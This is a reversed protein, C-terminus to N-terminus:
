ASRAKEAGAAASWPAARNAAAAVRSLLGTRRLTQAVAMGGVAILCGGIVDTFNHGGETITGILMLVNFGLFPFWLYKLNRTATALLVAAGAHFSPFCVLGLIRDFDMVRDLGARLHAVKDIAEQSVGIPHHIGNIAYSAVADYSEGDVVGSVSLTVMGAIIYAVTFEYLDDFKGRFSMIMFVVIFERMWNSYCFGLIESLYPLKHVTISFQLWHFGMSRDALEVIDSVPHARFTALAYQFTMMCVSMIVYVIIMNICLITRTNEPMRVYQYINLLFLALVLGAFLEFFSGAHAFTLGSTVIAGLTVVISLTVLVTIEGLPHSTQPRAIQATAVGANRM